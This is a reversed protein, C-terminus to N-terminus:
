INQRAKKRASSPEVVYDDFRAVRKRTFQGANPSPPPVLVRISQIDATFAHNNKDTWHRVGFFLRVIAGKLQEEYRTPRILEGAQDYAPLPVVFHTGKLKELEPRAEAHRLPWDELKFEVTEATGSESSEEGGAPIRDQTQFVKHYIRLQSHLNLGAVAGVAPQPDGRMGFLRACVRELNNMGAQFDGALQPVFPDEALARSM